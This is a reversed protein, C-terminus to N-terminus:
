RGTPRPPSSGDSCPYCHGFADCCRGALDEPTKKFVNPQLRKKRQAARGKALAAKRQEQRAACGCDAHEDKEKEGM